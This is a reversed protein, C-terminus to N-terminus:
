GPTPPCRAAARLPTVGGRLRHWVSQGWGPGPQGSQVGLWTGLPTGGARPTGGVNPHGPPRPLLVCGGRRRRWPPAEAAGTASLPHCSSAPPAGAGPSMQSVSLVHGTDLFAQSCSASAPSPLLLSRPGRLPAPLWAPAGWFWCGQWSGWRCGWAALLQPSGWAGGFGVHGWSSHCGM